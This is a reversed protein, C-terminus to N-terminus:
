PAANANFRISFAAQKASVLSAHGDCFLVNLAPDSNKVKGPKAKTHRNWDIPVSYHTFPPLTASM